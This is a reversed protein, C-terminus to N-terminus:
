TFRCCGDGPDDRRALLAAARSQQGSMDVGLASLVGVLTAEAVLAHRGQWDWYETAVGYAAALEALVDVETVGGDLRVAARAPHSPQSRTNWMTKTSGRIGDFVPLAMRVTATM